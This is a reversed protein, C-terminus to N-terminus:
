GGPTTPVMVQLECITIYANHHVVTVYRGAHNCTTWDPEGLHDDIPGCTFGTTYDATDSVVVTADLLREQCCDSRHWIDVSRVEYSQGLDVQWWETAANQTHTCSGAGFQSATNGDVANSAPGNPSNWQSMDLTSSQSALKGEAVNIIDCSGDDVNAAPNYNSAAPHTCGSVACAITGDDVVVLPLGNNCLCSVDDVNAAPDYNAAAPNTCGDVQVWFLYGAVPIPRLSTGDPLAVGVALNDGGSGEKALAMLSYYNGAALSQPASTQEPFKDWQRPSTWGPVSAILTAAAEDERLWLEGNDDSAIVFVYDGTQPALFRATLRNGVDDNADSPVELLDCSGLFGSRTPTDVIYAPNSTLDGVATGPIGEWTEWHVSGGSNGCICSGDDVNAVPNYNSARPHACGRVVCAVTGDDIVSLASGDDCICTGDDVTAGANYNFGAPNTCGRTCLGDDVNAAPDYNAAAPNTCGRVVCAVTGDDVVTLASGDDCLCSSDDVTAVPDFNVAAPRTCGLVPCVKEGNFAVPVSRGGDCMICSGDDDVAWPSFNLADRNTCDAAGFLYGQTPIPRLEEGDPLTVGVALYAIYTSIQLAQLAYFSGAELRQPASTQEPSADWQNPLSSASAILQLTSEDSGFWLEGQASAAIVFVYDGSIPARFFASLRSAPAAHSAVGGAPAQLAAPPTLVGTSTPMDLIYAPSSTLQAVTSGHLADWFEWHVGVTRGESCSGDDITAVPNYNTATPNTCCRGRPECSGDDHNATPDYNTAAQCTCGGIALVMVEVECISMFENHQVVTVYRGAHLCITEDPEGLSDDLVGCPTGTTYDSTDSVIVTAGLLHSDYDTRHWLGVTHVDYSRLLDVQWWETRGNNSRTCSFGDWDSRTNGDVALGAAGGQTISSQAAPKGEAVELMEAFGTCSGDDVNAAHDFNSASPTICGSVTNETARVQFRGIEQDSNARVRVAYHGKRPCIWEIFSDRRGSARWDDDSEALVTTGDTDLLEMVSDTLCDVEACMETEIEYHQGARARFPWTQSSGPVSVAGDVFTGDGGLLNACSGDNATAAPNYNSATPNTCGFVQPVFCIEWGGGLTFAQNFHEQWPLGTMVGGWGAGVTSDHRGDAQTPGCLGKEQCGNPAFYSGQHDNDSYWVMEDGLLVPTGEPCDSGSRTAGGPLAIVDEGTETDFVSCSDLLGAGGSVAIHCEEYAGYGQPRGVCRGGQSVTCPATTNYALCPRDPVWQLSRPGFDTCSHGSVVTFTPTGYTMSGEVTRTSDDNITIAFTHTGSERFERVTVDELRLTSGVGGLQSVAATLIAATVTTSALSLSAGSNLVLTMTGLDIGSLSLSGRSEVVFGGGDPVTGCDASDSGLPCLEYLSAPSGDDCFGDYAHVCTNDESLGQLRPAHALLRDGIISVSQGPTVILVHNIGADALLTLFFAGPAAATLASVFALADSGIYGGDGAGGLWSYVAHHLQCSFKRDEGDINLLLLFGHTLEACEPICDGISVGDETCSVGLQMALSSEAQVMARCSEYLSEYENLPLGPMTALEGACEEYFASFTAACDESPCAGPLACDAQLLRHGGQGADADCCADSVEAVRIELTGAPCTGHQAGAQARRGRTPASSTEATRIIIHAQDDAGDGTRQTRRRQGATKVLQELADVQAQLADVKGDTRRVDTHHLHFVVVQLGALALWHWSVRKLAPPTM